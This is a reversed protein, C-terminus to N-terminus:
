RHEGPCWTRWRCSRCFKWDPAPYQGEIALDISDDDVFRAVFPGDTFIANGTEDVAARWRGEGRLLRDDLYEYIVITGEATREGTPKWVGVMLAGWPYVEQYNGDAYFTALIPFTNGAVEGTLEWTGVVPHTAMTTTAAPTADQAQTPMGSAVLGLLVVLVLSLSVLYQRM